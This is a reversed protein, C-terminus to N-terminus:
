YIKEWNSAPCMNYVAHYEAETIYIDQLNTTCITYSIRERHKLDQLISIMMVSNGNYILENLGNGKRFSYRELVDTDGTCYMKGGAVLELAEESLEIDNDEVFLKLDDITKCQRAKDRLEEPLEGIYKEINEKM